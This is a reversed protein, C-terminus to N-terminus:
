MWPELRRVADLVQDVSISEICRPTDFKYCRYGPCPMCPLDARLLQCAAAWPRWAYSDSSGWLAVIKKKRAAALHTPGSDNGIYLGCRDIWVTLEELSLPPLGTLSDGAMETLQRLKERDVRGAAAVIPLGYARQLGQALAAFRALDWEKTFLTAFPHLLIFRGRQIRLAEMQDHVRQEAEPSLAVDLEIAEPLPIGLHLLPSLQHQVTHVHEAGWLSRSDPVRVDCWAAYRAAAYSVRCSAGSLVTFLGATPGSHMNFVLDFRRRRIQMAWQLRAVASGRSPIAIVEDVAPQNRFVGAYPEEILVSVRVAPRWSKLARPVPTMLVADGLSRLRVLLITRARDLSDRVAASIAGPGPSATEM